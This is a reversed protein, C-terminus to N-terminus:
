GGRKRRWGRAAVGEVETLDRLRGGGGGTGAKRLPGGEDGGGEGAEAVVAVAVAAEAGAGEAGITRRQM